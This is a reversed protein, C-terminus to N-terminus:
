RPIALAASPMRRLIMAQRFRVYNSPRDVRFRRPNPLVSAILAAEASNINAAPKRFFTRSAAEVGYVGDGMEVVNLYVEMIRRKSWVLEILVTFYAELGKRAWSRKPWLFVNKAVQQSITSAGRIKRSRENHKLAKEIAEWDFGHHEYFRWDEAAIMAHQLKPSMKEMPVWDKEFRVHKGAVFNEGARIFMLPTYPVPVVAYILVAILSVAFLGLVLGILLRLARLLFRLKPLRLARNGGRPLNEGPSEETSHRLDSAGSRM